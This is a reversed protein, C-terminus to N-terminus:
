EKPLLDSGPGLMPGEEWQGLGEEEGHRWSNAFVTQKSLRMRDTCKNVVGLNINEAWFDGEPELSM